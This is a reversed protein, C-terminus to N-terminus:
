DLLFMVQNEQKKVSDQRSFQELTPSTCLFFLSHVLCSSQREVSFTRRLEMLTVVLLNGYVLCFFMSFLESLM